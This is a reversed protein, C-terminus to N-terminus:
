HMYAVGVNLSWFTYSNSEGSISEGSEFAYNYRFNAIVGNDYGLPIIIGAEPAIGFHWNDENISYVGLELRQRIYYTGVNAGVFPMVKESKGLYYHTSFFIPVANIYRFQRGSVDASFEERDLSILKNTDENFINWGFFGGVSIKPAVFRRVGIGIGRYSTNDTYDKLNSAPFSMEYTVDTIIDQSYGQLPLITLLFVVAAAMYLYRM